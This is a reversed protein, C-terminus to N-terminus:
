PGCSVGYADSFYSVGNVDLHGVPVLQRTVAAWRSGGHIISANHLAAGFPAGWVRSLLAVYHSQHVLDAALEDVDDFPGIVGPVRDDPAERALLVLDLHVGLQDDALALHRHEDVLASDGIDEFGAGM